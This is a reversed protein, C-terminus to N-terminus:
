GVLEVILGRQYTRMAKSGHIQAVLAAIRHGVDDILEVLGGIGANEQAQKVLNPTIWVLEFVDGAQHAFVIPTPPQDAPTTPPLLPLLDSMAASRHKTPCLGSSKGTWQIPSRETRYQRRLM